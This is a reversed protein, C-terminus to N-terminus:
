AAVADFEWFRSLKFTVAFDVKVMEVSKGLVHSELHGIPNAGPHLPLLNFERSDPDIADVFLRPMPNVGADLSEVVVDNVAMITVIVPPVQVFAIPVSGIVTIESVCRVQVLVDLVGAAVLVVVVHECRVIWGVKPGLQM